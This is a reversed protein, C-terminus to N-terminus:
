YNGEGDDRDDEVDNMSFRQRRYPEKPARVENNRNKQQKKGGRNQRSPKTFDDVQETERIPM